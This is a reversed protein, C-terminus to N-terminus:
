EGSSVLEHYAEPGPRKIGLFFGEYGGFLHQTPVLTLRSSLRFSFGKSRGREWCASDWNELRGAWLRTMCRNRYGYVM